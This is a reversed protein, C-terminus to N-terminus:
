RYEYNMNNIIERLKTKLRNIRVRVNIPTIGLSAAIDDYPVDEMYLYVLAKEVKNLQQVAKYFITLQEEKEGALTNEEARDFGAPIKESDPRRKQKKFFVIATNLAVRYMWTSFKSEGRYSDFALWLQLTMEQLLDDRDEPDDQYIKCIKFLIGKNEEILQLFRTQKTDM